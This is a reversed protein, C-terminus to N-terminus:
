NPFDAEDLKEIRCEWEMDEFEDGSSSGSRFEFVKLGSPKTLFPDSSKSVRDLTVLPKGPRLDVLITSLNDGGVGETKGVDESCAVDLINGLLESLTVPLISVSSAPSSKPSIGDTTGTPSLSGCGRVGQLGHLVYDVVEQSKMVEWLGDCALIIFDDSEFNIEFVSTDPNATIVQKEPPLSSDSKFSLDGIARTLNLSGNVRGNIIVGGASRIRETETEVSIKHDVTLDVADGNRCLVARSDGSNAVFVRNDDSIYIVLATCGSHSAPHGDDSFRSHGTKM